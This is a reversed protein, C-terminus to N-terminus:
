AGDAPPDIPRGALTWGAPLAARLRDTVEDLSVDPPGSLLLEQRPAVAVPAAPTIAPEVTRAARLRADGRVLLAHYALVVLAIVLIGLPGSVDSVFSGGELGLLLRFGRYLIFALSGAAAVLAVGSVLFLFARRAASLAEAVPDAAARDLAPRWGILWAPLGVLAWAIVQDLEERWGVGIGATRGGGVAFDLILGLAWATGAAVFALGLAATALDSVRVAARLRIAGGVAAAEARADRRRIVLAVLFPLAALITGIVDQAVIVLDSRGAVFVDLIRGVASGAAVLFIVLAVLLFVVPEAARIRSLREEQGVADARHALRDVAVRHVAWVVGGVVGVAISSSVGGHWWDSGAAVSRGVLADLAIGILGGLSGCLALLGVLSAAYPEIRSLVASTGHLPGFALDAVRSRAVVFYAALPVLAPGVSGAVGPGPDYGSGLLGLIAGRIVDSAAVSGYALLIWGVLLFQSARAETAREDAGSADTRRAIREAYWTHAAWLPLGIATLALSSSLEERTQSEGGFQELPAIGVVDLVVRVLGILGAVLLGLGIAAVLYVYIRRATLM